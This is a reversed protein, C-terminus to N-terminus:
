RGASVIGAQEARGARDALAEVASVGGCVTVGEGRRESPQVSSAKSKKRKMKLMSAMACSKPTSRECTVTAVM